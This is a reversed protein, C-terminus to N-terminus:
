GVQLVFRTERQECSKDKMNHGGIAGIIPVELTSAGHAFVRANGKALVDVGENGRSQFAAAIGRGAFNHTRSQAQKFLFFSPEGGKPLHKVFALCAFKNLVRKTAQNLFQIAFIM